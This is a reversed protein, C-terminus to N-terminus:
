AISYGGHACSETPTPAFERIPNDAKSDRGLLEPRWDMVAQDAVESIQRIPTVNTFDPIDDRLVTGSSAMPLIPPQDAAGHM